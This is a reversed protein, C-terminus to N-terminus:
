GRGGHAVLYSTFINEKQVIRCLCFSIHFHIGYLAIIEVFVLFETKQNQLIDDDSATKNKKKTEVTSIKRTM